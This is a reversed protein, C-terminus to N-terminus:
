KGLRRYMGTALAAFSLLTATTWILSSVVHNSVPGGLTLAREANVLATLPQRSGIAQLWGPMTELPVFASSSGGPFRSSGSGNPGLLGVISGAPVEFSLEDLAVVKGYRKSLGEVVIAPRTM